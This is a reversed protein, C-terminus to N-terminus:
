SLHWFLNLPGKGHGLNPANRIAETVFHKANRVAEIPTDRLLLHCLLASSFACGTGHTSTSNIHEGAFRHIDGSPLRLIDTPQADDGATAVIHLHPHRAALVHTAAEAQALTEVPQATLASLEPWNPTIWTVHPLLQQHLTEIADPPLLEAGSTARLIPDLVILPVVPPVTPPSSPPQNGAAPPTEPPHLTALFGAVSAAIEASGLMGIKIGSPPLDAVLHDLARRLFAPDVPQIEAVGLTSQVTLATIASTGFLRHAAFTQLDATIGAGSSPDHGAITLLTRASVANPPSIAAAPHTLFASM